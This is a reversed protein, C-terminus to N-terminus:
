YDLTVMTEVYSVTNRPGVVRTIIRYYPSVSAAVRAAESGSLGRNDYTPTEHFIGKRGGPGVCANIISTNPCYGTAPGDCFCMRSVIYAASYGAPMGTPVAMAQGTPTGTHQPDTCNTGAAVALPAPWGADDSHDTPTRNGTFDCGTMWNAYYATAANSTNVVSPNTAVSNSLWTTAYTVAVDNAITASEKFAMNGAIELGTGVSRTLALTALTIAVLALLAVILAIGTQRRFGSTRMAALRRPQSTAPIFTTM